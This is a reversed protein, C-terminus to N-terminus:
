ERIENLVVSPGALLRNGESGGAILEWDIDDNGFHVPVYFMGEWTVTAASPAAPITLVGTTTNLTYNAPATVVGSIKVAFPSALPRKITRDKTRTSGISTYRKKLQFTTSTIGTVLGVAYSAAGDKPDQLLFGYAGGETVEHLGEITQWVSAAMPIFGMEYQRLTRDWDINIREQGNPLMSRTNRRMNKGRLGAASIVNAALIVDSYITITM